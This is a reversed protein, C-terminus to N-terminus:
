SPVHCSVSNGVYSIPNDCYPQTHSYVLDLDPFLVFRTLWERFLAIFSALFATSIVWFPTDKLWQGYTKDAPLTLWAFGAWLFYWGALGVLLVAGTALKNRRCKKLWEM